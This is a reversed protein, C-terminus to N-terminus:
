AAIRHKATPEDNVDLPTANAEILMLRHLAASLEAIQRDREALRRDKAALADSLTAIYHQSERYARQLEVFRRYQDPTV